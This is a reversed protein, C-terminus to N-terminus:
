TAMNLQDDLEKKLAEVDWPMGKGEELEQLGVRIDERLKNHKEKVARLARVADVFLEEASRYEGSQISDNMYQEVDPPYSEPM